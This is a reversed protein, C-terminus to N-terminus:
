DCAGNTPYILWKYKLQTHAKGNNFVVNKMATSGTDDCVDAILYIGETIHSYVDRFIQEITTCCVSDEENGVINFYYKFTESNKAYFIVWVCSTDLHVIKVLNDQLTWDAFCEISAWITDWEKTSPMCSNNIRAYEVLSYGNKQQIFPTCLDECISDDLTNRESENMLIHCSSFFPLLLAILLYHKM